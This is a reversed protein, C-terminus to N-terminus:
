EIVKQANIADPFPISNLKNRFGKLRPKGAVKKFCRQWATYAVSLMGQLTHSPIGIKKGHEALLDQFEFKSHYISDRADLQIKRVAFNWVGTLSWLWENLIVEQKTNLRLKLQYQVM